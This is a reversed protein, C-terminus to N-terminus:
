VDETEEVVTFCSHFFRQATLSAFSGQAYPMVFSLLLLKLM